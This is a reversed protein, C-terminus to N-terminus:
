CTVILKGWIFNESEAFAYIWYLEVVIEIFQQGVNFAQSWRFIRNVCIIMKMLNKFENKLKLLKSYFKKNCFKRNVAMTWLNLYKIKFNLEQLTFYIVDMFFAHQINRFRTGLLSFIEAIWFHTWQTDKDIICTLVTTEVAITFTIFIVFRWRFSKFWNFKVEKRISVIKEYFKWYEVFYKRQVFSEIIMSLHTFVLSGYVIIDNIKGISSESYLMWDQATIMFIIIGLLLIFNSFTVVFAFANSKQNIKM